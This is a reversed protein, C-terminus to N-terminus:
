PHQARIYWGADQDLYDSYLDRRHRELCMRCRFRTEKETSTRIWRSGSRLMNMLVDVVNWHWAGCVVHYKITGAAGGGQFSGEVSQIM